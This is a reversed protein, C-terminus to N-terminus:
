AEREATPDQMDRAQEARAIAREFDLVDLSLFAGPRWRITNREVCLFTDVEPLTVRLKYLLNRLNTHAQGDSSEPWFLYALSSRSQPATRHLVLYALLSQLRPLDDLNSVSRENVMLSFDGLLSIHLSPVVPFQKLDDLLHITFQARRDQYITVPPRETLVGQLM